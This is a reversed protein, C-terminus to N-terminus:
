TRRRNWNRLAENIDGAMGVAFAKREAPTPMTLSNVTMNVTVGGSM